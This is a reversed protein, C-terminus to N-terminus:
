ALPGFNELVAKLRDVAKGPQGPATLVAALQSLFRQRADDDAMALGLNPFDGGSGVRADALALHTDKFRQPVTRRLVRAHVYPHRIYHALGHINKAYFHRLEMRDEATGEAASRPWSEAASFRAVLAVPDMAHAFNYYFRAANRDNSTSFSPRVISRDSDPRPDCFIRAVNAVMFLAQWKFQGPAFPNDGFRQRLRAVDADSTGDPVAGRHKMWATTGLLQIADHTVATGLSHAMISFRPKPGSAPTNEVVANALQSAVSHRVVQRILPFAYMVADLAHTAFWDNSSTASAFRNAVEAVNASTAGPFQDNTLSSALTNWTSRVEEFIDDYRIEVFKLSNSLPNADGNGSPFRDPYEASARELAKQPGDEEEQSWGAGHSGVGHVFMLVNKVAM